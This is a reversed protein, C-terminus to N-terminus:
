SLGGGLERTARDVLDRLTRIDGVTPIRADLGCREWAVGILEVHEISDLGLEDVLPADLSPVFGDQELAECGIEDLAARIQQEVDLSWSLDTASPGPETTLTPTTPSIHTSM